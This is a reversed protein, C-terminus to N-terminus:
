QSSGSGSPVGVGSDAAPAAKQGVERAIGTLVAEVGEFPEGVVIGAGTITFNRISPDFAGERVKFLSILRFLRSRLEVYRLVVMVESLASLGGKPVRIETGVLEPLELTHLTTVGLARLENALASWFRAIREPELTAQEFATLGDIVLRKVGRRRVADILRHALEDLIHEGMPHWLMEVAGSAEAGALDLGMTEARVRLHEPPEFCGFWLGPEAASSQCVFHLALTTKGSGSPGMVAATCGAPLGSGLMLTDFSAVGSSVRTRLPPERRTPVALLAELRPFVRLGDRTIRYAHEGELFDSGRLKHVVMRRENRIGKRYWSLEILGDVMTNEPASPLGSATTLLVMTCNTSSALTQLEHTFRKMEFGAATGAKAHVSSLGDLVLLTAGRALVERRIFTALGDLGEDELPRYASLYTVQDPILAPDFFRMPRLHLMMRGHNEGLVTVFLGRRGGAAHGFVIQNALTTKGMGPPGQVLYLGGQLFGGHLIADLGPVLTPLREIEAEGSSANAEHQTM